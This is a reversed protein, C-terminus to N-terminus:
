QINYLNYFVNKCSFGSGLKANNLCKVTHFNLILKFNVLLINSTPYFLIVFIWHHEKYAQGPKLLVESQLTENFIVTKTLKLILCMCSM